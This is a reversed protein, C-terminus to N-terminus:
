KSRWKKAMESDNQAKSRKWIRLSQLFTNPLKTYEDKTFHFIGTEYDSFLTIISANDDICQRIYEITVINRNEDVISDAKDGKLIDPSFV